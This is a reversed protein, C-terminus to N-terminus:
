RRSGEKPGAAVAEEVSYIQFSGSALKAGVPSGDSQHQWWRLLWPAEGVRAAGLCWSGVVEEVLLCEAPQKLVEIGIPVVVRTCQIHDYAGGKNFTACLISTLTLLTLGVM